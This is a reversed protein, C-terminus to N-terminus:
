EQGLRLASAGPYANSSTHTPYRAPVYRVSNNESSQSDITKSVGLSFHQRISHHTTTIIWITFSIIDILSKCLSFFYQFFFSELNDGIIVIFYQM